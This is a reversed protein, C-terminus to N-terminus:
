YVRPRKDITVIGIAQQVFDAEYLVRHNGIRIRFMLRKQGQVRKSKHPVPTTTLTTEIKDVIRQAVHTDLKHLYRKAQKSYNVNFGM